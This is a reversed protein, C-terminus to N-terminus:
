FTTGVAPAAVDSRGPVHIYAYLPLVLKLVPHGFIRDASECYYQCVMTDAVVFKSLHLLVDLVLNFIRQIQGARSGIRTLVAKGPVYEPIRRLDLLCASM